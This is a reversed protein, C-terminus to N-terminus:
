DYTERQAGKKKSKLEQETTEVKLKSKEGMEDTPSEQM